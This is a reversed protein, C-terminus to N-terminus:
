LLTTQATIICFNSLRSIPDISRIEYTAGDIVLKWRLTLGPIKYITVSVSTQSELNGDTVFEDSAREVKAYVKGYEGTRIRKQGEPGREQYTALVTILTDLEGINVVGDAM